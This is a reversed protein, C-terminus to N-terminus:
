SVNPSKVSQVANYGLPFAEGSVSDVEFGFINWQSELIHNITKRLFTNPRSFMKVIQSM